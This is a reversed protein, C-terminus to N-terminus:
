VSRDVADEGRLVREVAQVLRDPTAAFTPIDLAAVKRALAEDFSARGADNLALICLVRVQSERLAALRQLLATRDGGEGLDTILLFLTKDPQGVLTAGYAVAHAIDTGGGLQTGLLVEVPDALQDSVDLVSTDFLVLRTDLAPLSAFVAAIVSAYVVSEAMSGSQDVLIVLRWEHYRQQNAYFYLREPVIRGLAPQYNRLGDRVTRRVDLNRAIRLPSHRNRRLAGVVAQRVQQELRQRLEAAIESVVARATARTREPMLHRLAVLTAALAVNRELTELTEPELLLQDLGRRVIADHEIFAVVERPFHRRIEGLWTPVYPASDALSGQREGYVFDLAEDLGHLAPADALAAEALGWATTADGVAPPPGVVLRWRLLAARAADDHESVM